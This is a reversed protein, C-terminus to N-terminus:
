LDEYSGRKHLSLDTHLVEGATREGQLGLQAQLSDLTKIVRSVSKPLASRNQLSAANLNSVVVLSSSAAIM